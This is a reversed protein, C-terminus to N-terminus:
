QFNMKTTLHFLFAPFLQFTSSLAKGLSWVKSADLAHGNREEPKGQYLCNKKLILSM